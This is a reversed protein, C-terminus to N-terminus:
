LIFLGRKHTVLFSHLDFGQTSTMVFMFETSYNVINSV